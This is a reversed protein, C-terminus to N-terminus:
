VSMMSFAIAAGSSRPSWGAAPLLGPESKKKTAKTMSTVNV